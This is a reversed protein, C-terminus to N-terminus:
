HRETPAFTENDKRMKQAEDQHVIKLTLVM